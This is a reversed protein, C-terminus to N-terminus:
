DKYEHIETVHSIKNRGGDKSGQMAEGQHDSVLIVSKKPNFGEKSDILSSVGCAPMLFM